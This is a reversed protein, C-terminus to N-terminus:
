ASPPKRARKGTTPTTPNAPDKSGSAEANNDKEVDLPNDSTGRHAKELMSIVHGIKLDLSDVKRDLQDLTDSLMEADTKDGTHPEDTDATSDPLADFMSEMGDLEEEAVVKDTVKWKMIVQDVATCANFERLATKLTTIPDSTLKPASETSDLAINTWGNVSRYLFIKGGNDLINQHMHTRIAAAQKTQFPIIATIVQSKDIVLTVDEPPVVQKGALKAKFLSNKPQSNCGFPSSM